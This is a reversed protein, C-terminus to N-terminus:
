LCKNRISALSGGKGSEAGGDMAPWQNSPFNDFFFLVRLLKKSVVSEILSNSIDTNLQYVHVNRM